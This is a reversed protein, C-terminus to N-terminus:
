NRYNRTFSPVENKDLKYSCPIVNTCFYEFLYLKRMEQQM